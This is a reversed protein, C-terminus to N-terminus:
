QAAQEEALVADLGFEQKRLIRARLDSEPEFSLARRWQFRAEDHRGVMWLVDGLHDTVVPDVPELEVARIMPAVAEDFRGLRYLAWGLSDVIAGNDPQAEIAREIMALAEEPDGGRELMSYGLYNLVNPQTPNQELAARFDAEAERWKDQQDRTIGRTYLVIWRGPQGPGILDLASSYAAEAEAHRQQQAHIDGIASFLEANQPDNQALETLTEIAADPAGDQTQLEALLRRSGTYVLDDQTIQTLEERGLDARGVQGLLAAVSLTTTGDEPILKHALRAYILGLEPADDDGLVQAINHLLGGIAARPSPVVDFEIPAGAEIRLRLEQLGPESQDSLLALAEDRRDLQALLQAQARLSQPSYPLGEEHGQRLTELAGAANGSLGLIMSKDYLGAVRVNPQAIVGDLTKIAANPTGAGYQAWALAIGDVVPSIRMGGEFASVMQDWEGADAWNTLRLLDAPQNDIGDEALQAAMPTAADLDGASILMVTLNQRITANLPDTELAREYFGIAEGFRFDQAAQQGALYAGMDRAAAPLAFTVFASLLLARM